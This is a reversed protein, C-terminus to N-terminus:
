GYRTLWRGLARAVAEAETRGRTRARYYFVHGADGALVPQPDWVQAQYHGQAFPSAPRGLEEVTHRLGRTALAAEVDELAYGDPGAHVGAAELVVALERPLAVGNM